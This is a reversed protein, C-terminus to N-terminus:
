SRWAYHVCPVSPFCDCVLLKKQGGIRRGRGVARRSGVLSGGEGFEANMGGGDGGESLGTNQAGERNLGHRQGEGEGSLVEDPLGLRAGALGEAEANRQQLRNDAGVVLAVLSLELGSCRLSQHDHGRALEADLHGAVELDGAAM